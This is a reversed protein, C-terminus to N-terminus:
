RCVGKKPHCSFSCCDANTTCAEGAAACVPAAVCLGAECVEGAGCALPQFVCGTAAACSDTTCPDGDNCTLPTHDCAYTDGGTAVCLDTTCADADGCDVPAGPQCHGAACTEAGNCPDGDACDANTACAPVDPVWAAFLTTRTADEFGPCGSDSCVNSEYCRKKRNWVFDTNGRVLVGEVVGTAADIVPSGSNGGYTDLNAEFYGAATNSKVQAGGAVKLPLGAPHGAVTLATGLAVAGSRRIALPTHGAVPRDLQVVAYDETSTERRALVQGCSYVDDAPVWSRVATASDMRFGFVFVTDACTASDVCHGATVMLDPGVLFGSCFATTPQTRYPETTCLSYASAFSQSVDLAWGGASPWLDARHLLAVTADALALERSSTVEYYEHRDDAGYILPEGSATLAGPAGAEPDCATLLLLPVVAALTSLTLGRM